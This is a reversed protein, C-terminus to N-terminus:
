PRIDLSYIHSNSYSFGAQRATEDRRFPSLFLRCPTEFSMMSSETPIQTEYRKLDLSQTHASPLRSATTFNQSIIAQLLFTSCLCIWECMVAFYVKEENPLLFPLERGVRKDRRMLGNRVVAPLSRGKAGTCQSLNNRHSRVLRPCHPCRADAFAVWLGPIKLWILVWCWPLRMRGRIFEWILINDAKSEQM